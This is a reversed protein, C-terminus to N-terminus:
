SVLEVYESSCVLYVCAQGWDVCAQLVLKRLAPYDALECAVSYRVLIDSLTVGNDNVWQGSFGAQRTYGGFQDVLKSELNQWQATHYTEGSNNCSPLLFSYEVLNSNENNDSKPSGPSYSLESLERQTNVYKGHDSDQRVRYVIWNEADRYANVSLSFKPGHEGSVLQRPQWYKDGIRVISWPYYDGVSHNQLGVHKDNHQTSM